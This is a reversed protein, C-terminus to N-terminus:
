DHPDNAGGDLKALISEAREQIEDTGFIQPRTLRYAKLLERLAEVLESNINCTPYPNRGFIGGNLYNVMGDASEITSHDSHPEWKGSPDYFGVTWLGPESKVYVYQQSGAATKPTPMM